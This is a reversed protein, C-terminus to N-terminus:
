LGKLYEVLAWRDASTMDVGYDHGRNSNGVIEAGNADRTRFLFGGQDQALGVRKPDFPGVPVRFTEPRADSPLLLDYLTPVSGNHLYPASAWIGNLPRSKYGPLPFTEPDETHLLMAQDACYSRMAEIGSSAVENGRLGAWVMADFGIWSKIRDFLLTTEARLQADFLQPAQNYLDKMILAAMIQNTFETEAFTETFEKFSELTNAKMKGALKGAPIQHLMINCTMMPDTGTLESGFAFNANSAATTVSIDVVPQVCVFPDSGYKSGASSCPAEDLPYEQTLDTTDEVIGHCAVCHEQYLDAGHAQRTQDLTGFVDEPWRPSQLTALSKEIKLLNPGNVSTTLTGDDLMEAEAFVGLAETWNRIYAGIKLNDGQLSIDTGNEVLGNHQLAGQQNANWVHPFNVPANAPRVFPAPGKQVVKATAAQIYAVADARGYGWGQNHDLDAVIRDIESRHALWDAMEARMQAIDTYGSDPLASFLAASKSPDDYRQQVSKTLDGLLSGFDGYSQGGHVMLETEQYTLRTTHCASCNLGLWDTGDEDTDVIFGIPLPADPSAFPFGYDTAIAQGGYTAQASLAKFWDLRILRSGQSTEYWTTPAQATLDTWGQDMWVRNLQGEATASTCLGAAMFTVVYKM